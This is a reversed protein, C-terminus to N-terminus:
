IASDLKIRTVVRLQFWCSFRRMSAGSLADTPRSNLALNRTVVDETTSATGAHELDIAFEVPLESERLAGTRSRPGASQCPHIDSFFAIRM